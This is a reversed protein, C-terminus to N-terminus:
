ASAAIGAEARSVAPQLHPLGHRRAHRHRMRRPPAMRRPSVRRQRIATGRERGAVRGLRAAGAGSRGEARVAADDGWSKNSFTHVEKIKGVVGSRVLAEGYLQQAARRSRSAWRRRLAAAARRVRDAAANRAPHQLAAERRVGGQPAQASGHRRSLAHSRPDVRQGLRPEEAERDLLERWDQYVRVSPFGSSCRSSGACTSTPWPSSSLLQSAELVLRHRVAGPRLRRHQRSAAHATRRAPSGRAM